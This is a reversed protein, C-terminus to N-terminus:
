QLAVVEGVLLQRQKTEFIYKKINCFMYISGPTLGLGLSGDRALNLIFGLGRFASCYIIAWWRGRPVSSTTTTSTDSETSRATTIRSVEAFSDTLRRSNTLFSFPNNEPASFLLRTRDTQGDAQRDTQRGTQRDTRRDTQRDTEPSNHIM